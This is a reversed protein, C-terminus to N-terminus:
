LGLGEGCLLLLLLLSLGSATGGGILMMVEGDGDTIAPGPLERGEGSFCGGSIANGNRWRTLMAKEGFVMTVGDEVPLM